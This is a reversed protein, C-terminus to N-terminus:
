AAGILEDIVRLLDEMEFPCALSRHGGYREAQEAARDLLRPDTATLLLPIARTAVEQHLKDLLEWGALQYVVLDVIVLDPQLAVILDYTQPVYNTTSVNFHEGQLIERLLELFPPHGNVGLIHKRARQAIKEIEATAQQTAAM